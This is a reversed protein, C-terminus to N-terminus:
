LGASCNPCRFDAGVVVKRGCSSCRRIEGIGADDDAAVPPPPAIGPRELIRAFRHLAAVLGEIEAPDFLSDFLGCGLKGTRATVWGVNLRAMLATLARIEADEITGLLAREAALDDPDGELYFHPAFFHRRERDDELDGDPEEDRGGEGPGAEPDHSISLHGAPDLLRLEVKLGGTSTDMRLLFPRDELRGRCTVEDEAPDHRVSGQFRAAIPDLLARLFRLRAPEDELDSFDAAGPM